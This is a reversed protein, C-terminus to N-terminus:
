TEREFDVLDRYTEEYFKSVVGAIEDYQDHHSGKSKVRYYSCGFEDLLDIWYQDTTERAEGGYRLPDKTFPIDGNMVIYLHGKTERFMHELAYNPTTRYLRAYGITTLLDTDQIVWPYKLNAIVSKQVSYQMQAIIEMREDTVEPGFTELYSRAWEPLYKGGIFSDCALSQAMTTKGTSEAGFMVIRRILHKKFAPMVDMFREDLNRRVDTGKVPYIERGIDVPMFRAGLQEAFKNGYAESAFVHTFKEVGTIETMLNVWYDWFTQTGDDVQPAGDDVHHYVQVHPMHKFQERIASARLAGKIPEFTRDFLVVHLKGFNLEMAEAATEVLFQHGITPVLATMVIVGHQRPLAGM